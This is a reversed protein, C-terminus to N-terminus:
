VCPNRVMFATLGEWLIAVLAAGAVAASIWRSFESSLNTVIVGTAAAAALLTLGGVVWPASAGFGRACALATYGYIATFHLAWVMVGSTMRLMTTFDPHTM